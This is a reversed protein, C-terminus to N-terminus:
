NKLQKDLDPTILDMAKKVDIYKELDRLAVVTFHNESLYQLYEKFLEPPTNVWPHEVDPVGHITLVVIKGNRAKNFAEMIQPKNEANMAWSPALLPYDVLPDYVRSGGARAFHYGKELLVDMVSQSLSYGPYAFTVPKPIHISDCKREIYKLEGLIEERSLRAVAPHSRTHNAIEFGMKDLEKIQRWNMYKTSDSFNPPFECIFFTAGFGFEKLIPAVVSYQSATADDFTLVVMREPIQTKLIQSNGSLPVFITLLLFLTNKIRKNLIKQSIDSLNGSQFKM